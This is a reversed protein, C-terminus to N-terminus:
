SSVINMCPIIMSCDFTLVVVKNIRGYLAWVRMTTFALSAIFAALVIHSRRSYMGAVALLDLLELIYLM